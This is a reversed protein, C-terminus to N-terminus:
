YSTDAAYRLLDDLSVFDLVSESTASLVVPPAAGHDLAERWRSACLCWRDGPKLGPFGFMPNPTSLNNGRFKTFKLFDETVVSCVGHVGLDQDPTRCTGDRNFGTIPSISCNELPSGLVNNVSKM